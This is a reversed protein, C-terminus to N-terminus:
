LLSYSITNGVQTIGSLIGCGKVGSATWGGTSGALMFNITNPIGSVLYAQANFVAAGNNQMAGLPIVKPSAPMLATPLGTFSFTAATSTFACYPLNISVFNGNITYQCTLNPNSGGTVVATFSGSQPISGTSSTLYFNGGKYFIATIGNAVIQGATLALGSQNLINVVGLGNVNITSPGTNTNAPVWYIIIGDTYATFNATFNLIYANTTGTDVGGYLTILQSNVIQDITWIVNGLSDQLVFKYAINPKLWIDAEGRFNLIVPNANPTIATNDTYTAIPTTTGAQYTFLQGGVLPNGNNDWGRFKGVPALYAATVSRAGRRAQAYRAGM